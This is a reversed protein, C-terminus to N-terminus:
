WNGGKVRSNAIKRFFIAALAFLCGYWVANAAVVIADVFVFFYGKSNEIAMLVVSTPCAAVILWDNIAPGRGKAELYGYALVM